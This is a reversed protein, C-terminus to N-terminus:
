GGFFGGHPGHPRPGRGAGDKPAAPRAGGGRGNSVLWRHVAVIRHQEESLVAELAAHRGTRAAAALKEKQEDSLRLAEAMAERRVEAEARRAALADRQETTLVVEVRARTAARIEEIRARAADPDLTGARVAEHLARVDPERAEVIERIRARQEDTLGLGGLDPGPGAMGQLRGWRRRAADRMPRVDAAAALQAVQDSDLIAEVESALWWADGPARDRGAWSDTLEELAVLQGPDLDLVAALRTQLPAGGDLAASADTATVTAEPATPASEGCGAVATAILVLAM